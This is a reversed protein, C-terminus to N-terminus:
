GVSLFRYGTVRTVVLFFLMSKVGYSGAVVVSYFFRYCCALFM